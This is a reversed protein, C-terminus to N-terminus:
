TCFRLLENCLEGISKCDKEIERLFLNSKKLKRFEEIEYYKIDVDKYVSLCNDISKSLYSVLEINKPEAGILLLDIDSNEHILQRSLSGFIFVHKIFNFEPKHLLYDIDKLCQLYDVYLSKM